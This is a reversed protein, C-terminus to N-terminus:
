NKFPIWIKIGLIEFNIQIYFIYGFRNNHLRFWSGEVCTTSLFRLLHQFRQRRHQLGEPQIGDAIIQVPTVGAIGFEANISWGDMKHNVFGQGARGTIYYIGEESISRLGCKQVFNRLWTQSMKQCTQCGFVSHLSDYLCFPVLVRSQVGAFVEFIQSLM